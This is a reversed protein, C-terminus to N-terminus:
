PQHNLVQRVLLQHTRKLLRAATTTVIVRHARHPVRDKRTHEILMHRYRTQAPLEPAIGLQPLQTPEIYDFAFIGHRRIIYVRPEQPHQHSPLFHDIFHEVQQHLLQIIREVPKAPSKPAVAFRYPRVCSAPALIRLLFLLVSPPRAAERM